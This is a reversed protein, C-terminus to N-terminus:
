TLSPQNLNILYSHNAETTINCTRIDHKDSHIPLWYGPALATSHWSVVISIKYSGQSIELCYPRLNRNDFAPSSEGDVKMVNTIITHFMIPFYNIEIEDGCIEAVNQDNLTVDSGLRITEPKLGCGSILFACFYNLINRM